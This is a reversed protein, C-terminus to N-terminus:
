EAVPQAEQNVAAEALQTLAEDTRKEEALTQDLLEVAGELGLGHALTKKKEAFIFTRSPRM